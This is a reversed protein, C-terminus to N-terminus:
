EKNVIAVKKRQVKQMKNQVKINKKMILRKSHKANNKKVNKNINNANNSQNTLANKQLHTKTKFTQYTEKKERTKKKLPTAVKLLLGTLLLGKLLLM